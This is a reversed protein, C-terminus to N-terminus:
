GWVHCGTTNFDLVVGVEAFSGRGGIMASVLTFAGKQM